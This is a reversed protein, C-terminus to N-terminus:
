CQLASVRYVNWVTTGSIEDDLPCLSDKVLDGLDSYIRNVEQTESDSLTSRRYKMCADFVIKLEVHQSCM